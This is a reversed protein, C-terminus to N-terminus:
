RGTYHAPAGREDWTENTDAALTGLTHAPHHAARTLFGIVLSFERRLSLFKLLFVSKVCLEFSIFHQQPFRLVRPTHPGFQTRKSTPTGCLCPSVTGKM